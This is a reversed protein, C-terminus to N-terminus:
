DDVPQVMSIGYKKCITYDDEGFAPATHVIGTGDEATVFDGLLFKFSNKNNKFYDFLPEYEKGELKRGKIEELIEYEKPNKFFNNVLKKALLYINKDSKDKLYVYDLNPNVTLALNSPLTWPTTTWALAYVNENSKKESKLKFKVVISDEKINKYSNDMAIEAKALPTSCRPCYMLIKEGEYIYGKEWLQKFAWWVSEIYENDMTKYSNEMDAWRGIREIVEKWAGAYELVKSRCYNNFKKIGMKEIEDKSNIGLGKEAINEIPLGHCDWGWIRRVYRGKMTWFRGYVDKTVSGLIHGYHPMGTAFPPGDYFIYPKKEKNKKLSKEFIKNKKWFELIEKEIENIQSKGLSSNIFFNGTKAKVEM